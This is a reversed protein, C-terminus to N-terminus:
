SSAGMALKEAYAHVELPECFDAPSYKPECLTATPSTEGYGKGPHGYVKDLVDSASSTKLMMPVTTHIFLSVALFKYRFDFRLSERHAM